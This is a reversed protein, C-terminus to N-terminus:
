RGHPQQLLEAFYWRLLSCPLDKRLCFWCEHIGKPLLAQPIKQGTDLHADTRPPTTSSCSLISGMRSSRNSVLSSMSSFGRVPRSLFRALCQELLSWMPLHGFLTARTGPADLNSCLRLKWVCTNETKAAVFTTFTKTDFSGSSPWWFVGDLSTTTLMHPARLLRTVELERAARSMENKLPSGFSTPMLVDWSLLYVKQTLGTGAPKLLERACTWCGHHKINPLSQPTVTNHTSKNHHINAIKYYWITGCAEM